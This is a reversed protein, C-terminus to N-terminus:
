TAGDRKYEALSVVLGTPIIARYVMSAAQKQASERSGKFVWAESLNTTNEVYELLPGTQKLYGRHLGDIRGSLRFVWQDTM